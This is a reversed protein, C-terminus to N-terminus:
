RCVVNLCQAPNGNGLAKNGGGDTVGAAAEIGYDGNDNATNRTITARDAEVDIGDDGNGSAVNGELLTDRTTSGGAVFIGDTESDTVRNKLVRDNSGGISIGLGNGAVTNGEILAGGNGEAIGLETNGRVVNDVIASEYAFVQVLGTGNDRLTNRAVRTGTLLEACIGSACGFLFIGGSNGEMLNAEITTQASGASVFVGNGSLSLTNQQVKAGDADAVHIANGTASVGVRRVVAGAAHQLYVGDHFERITGRTVTVADHGASDDVGQHGDGAGTGDITHGGLDLTIGDAGIVVGDGPCDVLDSDLRTDQTIVDGCGVHGAHAAAPALALALVAAGLALRPVAM